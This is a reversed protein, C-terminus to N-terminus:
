GVVEEEEEGVGDDKEAAELGWGRGGDAGAVETDNEVHGEGTIVTAILLKGKKIEM